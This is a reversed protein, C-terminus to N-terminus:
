LVACDSRVYAAANAFQTGLDHQAISASLEKLIRRRARKGREDHPLNAATARAFRGGSFAASQLLRGEGKMPWRVLQGPHNCVHRCLADYV